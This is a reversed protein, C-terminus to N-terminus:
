IFWSRLLKWSCCVFAKIQGPMAGHDKVSTLVSLVQICPFVIKKIQSVWILFSWIYWYYIPFFIYGRAEGVSGLKIPPPLAYPCEFVFTVSPDILENDALSAAYSGSKEYVIYWRWKENCTVDLSELLFHVERNYSFQLILDIISRFVTCFIKLCVKVCSDM